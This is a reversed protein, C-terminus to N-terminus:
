LLDSDCPLSSLQSTPRQPNRPLEGETVNMPNTYSRPSSIISPAYRNTNGHRYNDNGISYGLDDKETKISYINDAKEAHNHKKQKYYMAASPSKRRSNIYDKCGHVFCLVLSFGGIIELCSGLYGLVLAYDVVITFGSDSLLLSNITNNYWSVPILSLVGSLFIIVGGMGAILYNPVDQWCRIGLSAVVIGLATVILSAIMLGRAAQVVSLSFYDTNQIGCNKNQNTVSQDCIDWIGQLQIVDQPRNTLKSLQRWAPAVTCTLNFVLGCPALVIGIIMVTPTRM